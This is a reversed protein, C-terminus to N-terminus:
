VVAAPTLCLSLPLSLSPSLLLSFSPSLPPPLLSTLAAFQALSHWICVRCVILFSALLVIRALSVSLTHTRTLCCPKFCFATLARKAALAAALPFRCRLNNLYKPKQLLKFFALSPPLIRFLLPPLAPFFFPPPPTSCTFNHTTQSSSRCCLPRANNLHLSNNCLGRVPPPLAAAVCIRCINHCLSPSSSLPLSVHRYAAM